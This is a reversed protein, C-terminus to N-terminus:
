PPTIAARLQEVARQVSAPTGERAAQELERAATSVAELGYAAGSGKLQHAEVRITSRQETDGAALDTAARELAAVRAPLRARYDAVLADMRESM